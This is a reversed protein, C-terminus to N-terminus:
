MIQMLQSEMKKFTPLGQLKTFLDAPNETGPVKEFEVMSRDRIQQVWALRLNIHKLNSSCTSTNKIFGLAAGADVGIVIKPAVPIELEEAVFRLHMAESLADKAAHLESDASSTAIYEDTYNFGPKYNTSSCKQFYSKCTIPMGDYTIQIGTRSRLEQGGSLDYLGAWDADSHVVFGERNGIKKVLAFDQKGKLYRFLHKLAQLTGEITKISSLM